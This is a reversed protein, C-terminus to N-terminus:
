SATGTGRLSAETSPQDAFQVPPGVAALVEDSWKIPISTSYSFWSFIGLLTLIPFSIPFLIFRIITLVWAQAWWLKLTDGYPGMRAMCQLFTVPNERNSLVEGPSLHPGGDEMFKRVHEYMPAVTVEGLLM